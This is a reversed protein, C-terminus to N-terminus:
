LPTWWAKEMARRLPMVQPDEAVRPVVTATTEDPFFLHIRHAYDHDFRWCTSMEIKDVKVTEKILISYM